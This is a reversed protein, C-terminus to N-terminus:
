RSASARPPTAHPHATKSELSVKIDSPAIMVQFSEGTGPNTMKVLLCTHGFERVEDLAHFLEAGISTLRGSVRAAVEPPLQFTVEPM